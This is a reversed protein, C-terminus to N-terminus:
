HDTSHPIHGGGCKHGQNCFGRAYHISHEAVPLAEKESARPTLRRNGKRQKGLLSSQVKKVQVLRPVLVPCCIGVKNKGTCRDELTLGEEEGLCQILYLGLMEWPARWHM